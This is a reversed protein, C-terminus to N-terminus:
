RGLVYQEFVADSERKGNKPEHYGAKKEQTPKGMTPAAVRSALFNIVEAAKALGGSTLDAIVQDRQTDKVVGARIMADALEPARQAYAAKEAQTAEIVPATQQVYAATKELLSSDVTMEM